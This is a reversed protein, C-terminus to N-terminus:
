PNVVGALLPKGASRAQRIHMSLNQPHGMNLRQSLWAHSVLTRSHALEALARKYPHGKPLEKLRVDTLGLQSMGDQILREAEREDHRRVAEGGYSRRDHTGVTGRMRALVREGFAEDGVYWGHRVPKWGERYARKRCRQLSRRPRHSRQRKEWLTTNSVGGILGQDIYNYLTKTCVAGHMGAKRMRFAVVDPSEKHDIIRDHVFEVLKHNAGLKLDPGKATANLGHVDQGRDSSYVMKKRWESDLHRVRGRVLERQITRIHRGLVDAIDRPPRGGRSMREIVVREERTLHKGKRDQANCNVQEM